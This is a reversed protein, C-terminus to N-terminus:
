CVNADGSTPAVQEAAGARLSGLCARTAATAPSLPLLCGEKWQRKDYVKTGLYTVVMMIIKEILFIPNIFPCHGLSIGFQYLCAKPTKTEPLGAGGRELGRRRLASSVAAEAIGM